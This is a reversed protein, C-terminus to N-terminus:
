PCAGRPAECTGFLSQVIGADVPNIQGDCDVDYNCLAQEDTNGFNVQVIGWDVPNVQGDGDVDGDCVWEPDRRCAVEGEYCLWIEFFDIEGADDPIEDCVRLSWTQNVECGNFHDFSRYLEIDRDDEEDDDLNRDSGSGQRDWVILEGRCRQSDFIAAKIDGCWLQENGCSGTEGQIKLHLHMMSVRADPPAGSIPIEVTVCNIDPVCVNPDPECAICGHQEPSPYCVDDGTTVGGWRLITMGPEHRVSVTTAEGEDDFGDHMAIVSRPAFSFVCAVAFSGVVVLGGRKGSIMM